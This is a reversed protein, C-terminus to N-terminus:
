FEECPGKHTLLTIQSAVLVNVATLLREHTVLAVFSEAVATVQSAVLAHVTPLLRELTLLAPTAECLLSAEYLM